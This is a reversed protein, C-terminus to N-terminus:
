TSQFFDRTRPRLSPPMNTTQNPLLSAYGPRSLTRAISMLASSGCAVCNTQAASIVDCDLCLSAQRLPVLSPYDSNM